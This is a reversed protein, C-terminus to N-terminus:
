RSSRGTAAPRADIDAIVRAYRQQSWYAGAWDILVM